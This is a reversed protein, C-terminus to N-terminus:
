PEKFDIKWLRKKNPLYNAKDFNKIKSFIIKAKSKNKLWVKKAFARVSMSRGTALDWVQPFSKNKVSFNLCKILGDTVSDIHTFDYTQYGSTMNLNKGKRSHDILLPWLRKKNEDGGYVQFINVIRIKLNFIKSIDLCFKSFIFKSLSYIYHPKNTNIEIEKKSNVVREIMKEKNTSIIIFKKCNGEIANFIMKTSKFVNFNITEEFKTYKDYAGVTAFHLIIDSKNLEKWKKDINGVLWKVNKLKKNNKKKTVAFIFYNKKIAKKIFNRAIYGNSGTIFLNM